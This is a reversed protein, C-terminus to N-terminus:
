WPRWRRWIALVVHPLHRRHQCQRRDRLRRHQRGHWRRRHRQRHRQEAGKPPSPPAGPPSAQRQKANRSDNQRTYPTQPRPLPHPTFLKPIALPLPLVPISVTACQFYVASVSQHLYSRFFFRMVAGTLGILPARSTACANKRRVPLSGGRHHHKADDGWILFINGEIGRFLSSRPAAM